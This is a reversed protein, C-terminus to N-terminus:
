AGSAYLCVAGDWGYRVMAAPLTTIARAVVVAEALAGSASSINRIAACAGEAGEVDCAPHMLAGLVAPIAGVARAEGCVQAIDKGKLATKRAEMNGKGGTLECLLAAGARLSEADQGSLLQVAREFSREPFVGQPAAPTPYAAPQQPSPLAPQEDGGSSTSAVHRMSEPRDPTLLASRAALSRAVQMGARASMMSASVALLGQGYTLMPAGNPQRGLRELVAAAMERLRPHAAHVAALHPIVCEMAERFHTYYSVNLLAGVTPAVVPEEWEHQALALGLIALGNGRAGNALAAAHLSNSGSLNRLTSCADAVARAGASAPQPGEDLLAVLASLLAPIAGAKAVKECETDYVLGRKAIAAKREAMAGRGGTLDCLAAAGDILNGGSLLQVAREAPSAAAAAAPMPPPTLSPPLPPAAGWEAPPALPYATASPSASPPPPPSLAAATSSAWPAQPAAGSSPAAGWGPPPALPYAEAPAPLQQVPMAPDPTAQRSAPAAQATPTAPLNSPPALPSAPAAKEARAADAAAAPPSGASGAAALLERLLVAAVARAEPHASAAAEVLQTAGAAVIAGRALPMHSLNKLAGCAAVAVPASGPHAALAAVLAGVAGEQLAEASRPADLCALLNRLAQQLTQPSLTLLRFPISM